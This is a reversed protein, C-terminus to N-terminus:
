LQMLQNFQSNSGGLAGNLSSNLGNMFGFIAWIGVIVAAITLILSVLGIIKAKKNEQRLYKFTWALGFPPLFFSVLYIIIQKGISTSLQPEQLPKGCHPCFVADAPAKAGCSPCFRDELNMDMAMTSDIKYYRGAAIYAFKM